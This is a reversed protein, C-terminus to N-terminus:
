CSGAIAVRGSRHEADLTLRVSRGRQLRVITGGLAQEDFAFADACTGPCNLDPTTPM